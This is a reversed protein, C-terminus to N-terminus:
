YTHRKKRRNENLLVSLSEIASSCYSFDNTWENMMLKAVWKWCESRPSMEDECGDMGECVQAFVTSPTSPRKVDTSIGHFVSLAPIGVEVNGTNSCWHLRLLYNSCPLGATNLHAAKATNHVKLLTVEGRQCPTFVHFTLNIDM